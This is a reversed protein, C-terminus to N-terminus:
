CTSFAIMTSLRFDSAGIQGKHLWERHQSVLALATEAVLSLCATHGGKWDSRQDTDLVSFVSM